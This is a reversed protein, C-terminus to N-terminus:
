ALGDVLQVLLKEKLQRSRWRAKDPLEIVYNIIICQCIHCHDCLGSAASANRIHLPM